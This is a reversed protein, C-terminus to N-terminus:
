KLVNEMCRMLIAAAEARTANGQPKLCLGSGEQSGGVIGEAVAWRMAELAYGSVSAADAFGDLEGRKATDAGKFAAYRYLIAAIQERTVSTEPAFKTESIGNVIGNKVAWLIADTYWQGDPVDAFSHELGTVDPSGEARYLITVLMARTLQSNPEFRDASTGNMLGNELVYDVSEHFWDNEAVDAFNASACYNEEREGCNTCSGNEFSHGLAPIVEQTVALDCRSCHSGETLGSQTCTPAVAADTVMDHGLPQTISSVYSYDCHKCVNEMYGYGLCTAEFVTAECEHGAADTFDSRYSDGCACTYTTYGMATCTPETVAATYSHALKSVPETYSAGCDSCTFTREGEATCTPEKTVESVYSHETAPTYTDTYSSGCLTCTHTTYGMADCTAPTVADTYDHGSAEVISDVYSHGCVTCTHTTYGQTLCSPEVVTDKYSHGTAEVLSDVYSSGCLTCTHTTYGMADCTPETIEDAYDHAGNCFRVDVTQEKLGYSANDFGYTYTLTISTQGAAIPTEDFTIYETVDRELGNKLVAVVKMGSADFVEGAAYSLKTPNEVVKISEVKSTIAMLYGSDNKYYITGYEDAITSCICYQALPSVPTFVESYGTDSTTLPETQGKKDKLVSVGGPTMNYPLYIYVYGTEEEYATTLMASTQPYGLIAYSYAHTMEGTEANLDLVEICHGGNSSFQGKAGSVGLYIRGNYVSPTCTSMISGPADQATTGNADTLALSQFDEIKGTEWNIKANYIYGGKSTFFVRDSQPDHSVNSRIDGSCGYHSDLVVGTKRDFVLLASTNIYNGEGSGDDTGVICLKDTVYAGAWYFGGISSYSWSALKAEDTKGPDEDTVSIAVFNGPKSEGNWFGVYIYGDKYTPSTNPQGGIPDKYIWLSELTVANFAQIRGGSLGVFIMGDAYTAPNISFSSSGAMTGEALIEGTDSDIRLIRTGTYTIIDGDVLIPAGPAASWGTGYKGAWLLEADESAYPTPADTIGLHNEGNRFNGWAAELDANITENEAAKELAFTLDKTEDSVTFSEEKGVYGSATVTCTYTYGNVVDYRGDENPLLREGYQDVLNIVASEPTATIGMGRLTHRTVTLTYSTSYEGDSVVIEVTNQGIELAIEGSASGNYTVTYDEQYPVADITIREATTDATYAPEKYYYFTENMNAGSVSLSKLTPTRVSSVTYVQNETGATVTVNLTNTGGNRGFNALSQGSTKGSVITATQEKNSYLNTWKAVIGSNSPALESLTAWLYISTAQDPVSAIYSYGNRDFQPTLVCDGANNTVTMRLISLWGTLGCRTCVGNEGYNHGLAPETETQTLFVEGCVSCHSGASLGPETCTAAKAEDDVVTHGAPVTVTDTAGCVTCTYLVKGDTTCTKERLSTGADWAHEGESCRINVKATAPATAADETGMNPDFAILYYEGPELSATDFVYNEDDSTLFEFGDMPVRAADCLCVALGTVPEFSESGGYYISQTDYKQTSFRLTQGVDLVYEDKDFCAFAGNTWFSWNSFMALDITDGDSLLVYDATSGWGASMLPYVHNRYYMLNEDHGWFNVMYMSTASGSIYLANNGKDDYAAMDFCPMYNVGAGEAVYDMVGSVDNGQGCLEAPLGLYYRELLYIYLHLVTSRRVLESDVYAGQGDETHYRYFETLGYDVLDFYPVDVALYALTTTDKDNGAIPIGDSSITVYVRVREADTEDYGYQRDSGEDAATVTVSFDASATSGESCQASVTIHYDGADPTTFVLTKGESIYARGSEDATVSYTLSHGEVDTFVDSLEASFLEGAAVSASQPAKVTIGCSAAYAAPLLSLVMALVLLLSFMRKKMIEDREDYIINYIYVGLPSFACFFPQPSLM